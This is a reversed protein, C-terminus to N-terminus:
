LGSGTECPKESSRKESSSLKKGGKLCRKGQGGRREFDDGEERVKLRVLRGALPLHPGLKRRCRQPTAPSAWTKLRWRKSGEKRWVKRLRTEKGRKKVGATLFGAQCSPLERLDAGIAKDEPLLPRKGGKAPEQL